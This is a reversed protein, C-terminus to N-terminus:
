LTEEAKKPGYNIMYGAFLDPEDEENSHLISGYCTCYVYEHKDNLARYACEHYKKKGSLVSTVDDMYARRDEPHIRNVWVTNFDTQFESSLGFEKQWAPSVRTVNTEMNCIFPYSEKNSICMADFLRNTLGEPNVMAGQVKGTAQNSHYETKNQYMAYDAAKIVADLNKYEPNSLAYGISVSPEYPLDTGSVQLNAQVANLERVATELPVNEYVIVFEDGGTRYMGRASVLCKVLQAAVLSIYHDGEHHGYRNNVTRLRNIDCFAFLYKRSKDKAFEDEMKKLDDEYGHRSGMGTLADTLMKQRFVHIPNELSFFFSITVITIAGGTFLLAKYTAQVGSAFLLMLLIPVLVATVTKKLKKRNIVILVLGVLFYFVAVGYGAYAAPGASSYTGDCAEFRIPLMPLALVYAIPLIFGLRYLSKAQEPYCRDIVYQCITKAYLIASMFFLLHFAKNVGYSVKLNDNVMLVTIIDLTVHILAYYILQNFTKSDNGMDYSKATQWLFVLLVLCVFEERLILVPYM